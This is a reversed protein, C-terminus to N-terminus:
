LSSYRWWKIFIGGGGNDVATGNASNGDITSNIRDDQSGAQNWLAGGEAAAANPLVATINYRNCWIIHKAGGNGPPQTGATGNRMVQFM